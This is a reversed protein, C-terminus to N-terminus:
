LNPLERRVERLAGWRSEVLHVDKDVLRLMANIWGYVRYRIDTGKPVHIKITGYYLNNKKYGSSLPKVYTKGFNKPPVGTLDSWFKIIAKENQQPYINLWAKLQTPKIHFSSEVWRVMFLIFRPDSNTFQFSKTKSGEAWYMAAGMLRITASHATDKAVEAEAGKVIEDVERKRREIQSPTGRSLIAIQKTYLRQRHKESLKIHKLWLSLSSKAVGIKKSIERYSKGKKRLAIAQQRKKPPPNM